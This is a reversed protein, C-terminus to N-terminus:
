RGGTETRYPKGEEYLRLRARMGDAEATPLSAAMELAKKEWKVAERFDGAEAYAAALFSVMIPQQFRTLECARLACGVARKGDRLTADPCTALV